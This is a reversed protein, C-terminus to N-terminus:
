ALPTIDNRMLARSTPPSYRPLPLQELHDSLELAPSMDTMCLKRTAPSHHHYSAYLDGVCLREFLADRKMKATMPVRIRASM